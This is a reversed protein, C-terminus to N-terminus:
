SNAAPQRRCIFVLDQGLLTLPWAGSSYDDVSMAMTRMATRYARAPMLGFGRWSLIELGARQILARAEPISMECHSVGLRKDRAVGLHRISHRNGHVNLVLLGRITLHCALLRLVRERIEVEANLVFRFTTILDFNRGLLLSADDALDGCILSATNAAERARILMSASADVGMSQAVLESFTSLVRGTGCAYDLYSYTDMGPALRAFERTLWERELQWLCSDHSGEAYIVSDYHHAATPSSFLRSYM